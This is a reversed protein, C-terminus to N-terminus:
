SSNRQMARLADASLTTHHDIPEYEFGRIACTWYFGDRLRKYANVLEKDLLINPVDIVLYTDSFMLKAVLYRLLVTKGFGHPGILGSVRVDPDLLIPEYLDFCERWIFREQKMRPRPQISDFCPLAIASEPEQQRAQLHIGSELM